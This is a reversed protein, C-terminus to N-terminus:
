WRAAAVLLGVTEGVVGAAGLVDGTFGGIRRYAFAVVGAAALTGAALAVPGVAPRWLAALLLAWAMGGIAVPVLQESRGGRFASALGGDPRAYPVGVLTAAMWTRSGAWLAAVLVPAPHLSVLAAWRALLTTGAVVVGFAGVDPTTMVELRRESTLHALLGDATDCLGDLHLMGTLALDAIVALIAAVAPPWWHGAVWWVGGVSVGVGAGVVPFWWVAGPQPVAAGGVPTLFSVAGRLGAVPGNGKVV